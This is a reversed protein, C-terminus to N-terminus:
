RQGWKEHVARAEMVNQFLESGKGPLASWINSVAVDAEVQVTGLILLAFIVKKM